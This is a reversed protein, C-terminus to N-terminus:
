HKHGRSIYREIEREARVAKDGYDRFLEDYSAMVSDWSYAAIARRCVQSRFESPEGVSTEISTVLDHLDTSNSFYHAFRNCVEKNFPNDHAVILNKSAMAELLSPNTGGVSHGHIYALCHQRLM